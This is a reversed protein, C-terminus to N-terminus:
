RCSRPLAATSQAGCAWCRRTTASFLASGRRCVVANHTWAASLCLSASQLASDRTRQSLIQLSIRVPGHRIVDGAKITDPVPLRDQAGLSSGAPPSIMRHLSRSASLSKHPSRREQERMRHNRKKERLLFCRMLQRNLSPPRNTLKRTVAFLEDHRQLWTHPGHPQQLARSRCPSHAKLGAPLHQHM